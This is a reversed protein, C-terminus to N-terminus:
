EVQLGAYMGNRVYHHPVTCVLLYRGRRPSAKVSGRAGPGLTSTRTVVALAGSAEDVRIGVTPLRDAPLDTSMLVVNQPVPDENAVELRVTGAPVTLRMVTVSYDRLTVELGTEAVAPGTSPPADPPGVAATSGTTATTASAEGSRGGRVASPGAQGCATFLLGLAATGLAVRAGRRPCGRAAPRTAPAMGPASRGAVARAGVAVAGAPVPTNTPDM